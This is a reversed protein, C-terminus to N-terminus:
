DRKNGYICLPFALAIKLPFNCLTLLPFIWCSLFSLTSCGRDTDAVCVIIPQRGM